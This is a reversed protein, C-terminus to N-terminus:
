TRVLRTSTAGVALGSVLRNVYALSPGSGVGQEYQVEVTGATVAQIDGETTAPLLENKVADIFALEACADKIRQPITANDVSRDEDDDVSKRPWAHANDTDNVDGKWEFSHDLYTTARRLSAEKEDQSLNSWESRNRNSHYTDADAVSLYSDGNMPYTFAM